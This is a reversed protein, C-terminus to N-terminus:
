KPLDWILTTSDASATALSQSDPTFALAKVKGHQGELRSLTKLSKADWVYTTWTGGAALLRGDPSFAVCDFVEDEVDQQHLLKGTATETVMMRGFWPHAGEKHPRDKLLGLAISTGDPSLAFSTIREFSGPEKTNPKELVKKEALSWSSKREGTRVDWLALTKGRLLLSQGDSSFIGPM